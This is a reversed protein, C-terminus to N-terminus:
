WPNILDEKRYTHDRWVYISKGKGSKAMPDNGALRFLVAIPTVFVYYLASLIIRTNIWGLVLALRFWLWVIGVGAPPIVLSILGLILAIYAFYENDFIAALVLFGTVIVLQVRPTGSDEKIERYSRAAQL